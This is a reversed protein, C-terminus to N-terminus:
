LPVKRGLFKAKPCHERLIALAPDFTEPTCFLGIPQEGFGGKVLLYRRGASVKVKTVDRYRIFTSKSSRALLGAGMAGPNGTLIGGVLAATAAREVGKGSLSWVGKSSLALTVRFGGFLDVVLAILLVLVMFFGFLAAGIVVGVLNGSALCVVLAVVASGIGFALALSSWIMPNTLMKVRAPWALLYEEGKRGKASEQLLEEEEFEENPEIEDHSDPM